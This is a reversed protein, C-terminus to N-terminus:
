DVGDRQENTYGLSVPHSFSMTNPELLRYCLTFDLTWRSSSM